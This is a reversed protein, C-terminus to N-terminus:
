KIHKGRGTKFGEGCKRRSRVKRKVVKKQGEGRRFEEEV